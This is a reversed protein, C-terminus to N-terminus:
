KGQYFKALVKWTPDIFDTAHSSIKFTLYSSVNAFDLFTEMAANGKKKGTYEAVIVMILIM